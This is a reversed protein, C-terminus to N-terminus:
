IAAIPPWLVLFVSARRRVEFCFGSEARRHLYIFLLRSLLALTSTCM